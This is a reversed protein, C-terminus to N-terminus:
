GKSEIRHGFEGSEIEILPKVLVAILEFWRDAIDLNPLVRIKDNGDNAAGIYTGVVM